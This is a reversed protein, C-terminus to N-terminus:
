GRWVKVRHETTACAVHDGDHGAKRTCVITVISDYRAFCGEIGVHECCCVYKFKYQEFFWDMLKKWLKKM